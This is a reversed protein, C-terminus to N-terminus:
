PRHASDLPDSIWSRCILDRYENEPESCMDTIIIINGILHTMVDMGYFRNNHITDYVNIFQTQKIRHRQKKVLKM